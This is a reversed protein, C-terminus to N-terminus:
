AFTTSLGLGALQTAINKIASSISQDSKQLKHAIERQNHGLSLMSVILQYEKPLAAILHMINAVKERELFDDEASRSPSAVLDMDNDDTTALMSYEDEVMMSYTKYKRVCAKAAWTARTLIRADSDDPSCKFLIEDVMAGYIDDAELPDNAYSRAKAHLKHDLKEIRESLAPYLSQDNLFIIRKKGSPVHTKRCEKCIRQLSTGRRHYETLPKEVNCKTCKQTTDTNM